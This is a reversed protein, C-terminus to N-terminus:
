EQQRVLKFTEALTLPISVLPLRALPVISLFRNASRSFLFPILPV